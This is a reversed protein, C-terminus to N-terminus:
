HLLHWCRRLLRTTFHCISDWKRSGTRGHLKALEQLVLNAYSDDVVKKRDYRKFGIPLLDVLFLFDQNESWSSHCCRPVKLPTLGVALLEADLLPCLETLFRGEKEFTMDDFYSSSGGERKKKLKVIYTVEKDEGNQTYKVRVSTVTSAYNDGQGLFDEIAWSLFQADEGKDYHLANKVATETLVPYCSM